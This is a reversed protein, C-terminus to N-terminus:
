LNSLCSTYLDNMQWDCVGTSNRTCQAYQLCQYEPKWICISIAETDGCLENSCGSVICKRDQCKYQPCPTTICEKRDEVCIQDNPCVVDSCVDNQEMIGCGVGSGDSLIGCATGKICLISACEPPTICVSLVAVVHLLFCIIPLFM